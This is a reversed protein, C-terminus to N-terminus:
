AHTVLGFILWCVSAIFLGIYSYANARWIARRAREPAEPCLNRGVYWAETWFSAFFFPVLLVIMALPIIWHGGNEFPGLWPASLIISGVEGVVHPPYSKSGAAMALFALLFEIAASAVWALPIGVLTSFINGKVMQAIAVRWSVNLERRVVWSEVAVVPILAPVSMPWVIALMPLGANAFAVAPFSMLLLLLLRAM